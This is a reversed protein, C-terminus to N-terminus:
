LPKPPDHWIVEALVVHENPTGRREIRVLRGKWQSRWNELVARQTGHRSLVENSASDVIEYVTGQRAMLDGGNCGTPRMTWGNATREFLVRSNTGPLGVADGFWERLIEPLVNGPEGQPKRAVNVAVKVFNLEVEDDEILVSTWGEPIQPTAGRSPLFLIPKGSAHSVKATFATGEPEARLIYDALRWEALERVLNRFSDVLGVPVSIGFSFVDNEFTFWAPAEAHPPRTWAPIPQGVLLRRVAREDDLDASVDARVSPTRRAVQTFRRGLEGLAISGPFADSGLMALLVVMKYSRTMATTELDALFRSLPGSDLVGEEDPTLDGQARVFGLWSGYRSRVSRPAFGEHTAETATPRTGHRECFDQYWLGLHDVDRQRLLGTLIDVAELEYTVECGAPLEWEGAAVLELARAIHADGAPLNLLTQVKTLFTRHNGIYDIVRLHSKSPAKRLGRGVQQLWLIRSETPRLMMVTDIHPVDVGENFMDVAFVVDLEGAALQELSTARPASHAGSHVAVASLGAARFYEAMFDAHRQSVCFALTRTGALAEHQELINEARKKTAVAHELAQEDFRSSRWPINSYDVVDPVGFYHFPALLEREIGIGLDCRYILNEGCLALLDGGDTREPTATLGLLFGPEFHELLRRYTRASAHHFEDVVVYDFAERDFNRLHAARGLTQISAFIIDADPQKEDGTYMGLRAAPRIRRFTALAQRLIEERHAVFLVREAGAQETDFAALWTKGLGTALVVLGATDGAARSAALAELAEVQVGHPGPPIEDPVEAVLDVQRQPSPPVRRAEYRDIWAPDVQVVAADDFLRDFTHRVDLLCAPDASDLVRYNWEVAKTLAPRTLNSSGVFALSTGDTLRLIYAKPHYGIGTASAEFARLTLSGPRGLQLDLLRRLAAPSTVDLYDGTVVRVSGGRDLLDALHPGLLDVGSELIFAVALDVDTAEDLHRILHPLLPDDRGTSLRSDPRIEVARLLAPTAATGTSYGPGRERLYNGKSPIVHRVGGRPDPVDGARRPIVHVHLHPVTQGAQEGVNIGVNFDAVGYREVIVDRVANTSDTLRRQEDPSAEVM